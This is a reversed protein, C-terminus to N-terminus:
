ALRCLIMLHLRVKSLESLHANLTQEAVPPQNRIDAYMAQLMKRYKPRDKAFLLKNVPADQSCIM